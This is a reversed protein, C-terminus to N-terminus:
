FLSSNISLSRGQWLNRISLSQGLWYKKISLSQGQWYNRILIYWLIKLHGSKENTKITRGRVMKFDTDPNTPRRTEVCIEFCSFLRKDPGQHITCAYVCLWFNLLSTPLLSSVAPPSSRLNRCLCICQPPWQPPHAWHLYSIQLLLLVCIILPQASSHWM